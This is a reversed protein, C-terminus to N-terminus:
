ANASKRIASIAEQPSKYTQEGWHASVRASVHWLKTRPDRVVRYDPTGDVQEESEYEVNSVHRFVPYHPSNM